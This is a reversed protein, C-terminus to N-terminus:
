SLYKILFYKYVHLKAYHTCPATSYSGNTIRKWNSKWQWCQAAARAGRYKIITTHDFLSPKCKYSATIWPHSPTILGWVYSFSGLKKGLTRRKKSTPYHQLRSSFTQGLTRAINLVDFWKDQETWQERQERFRQHFTIFPM